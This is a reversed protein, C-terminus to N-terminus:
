SLYREPYIVDFPQLIVDKREIVCIQVRQNILMYERKRKQDNFHIQITENNDGIRISKYPFIENRKLFEIINPMILRQGQRIKGSNKMVEIVEKLELQHAVNGLLDFCKQSLDIWCRGIVYEKQFRLYSNEGWSIAWDMNSDWFYYGTGLWADRRTCIYPGDTEIEDINDRDELTQYATVIM